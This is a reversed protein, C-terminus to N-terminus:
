RRHHHSGILLLSQGLSRHLDRSEAADGLVNSNCLGRVDEFLVVIWLGLVEGSTSLPAFQANCATHSRGSLWDSCVVVGVVAADDLELLQTVRIFIDSGLQDLLTANAINAFGDATSIQTQAFDEVVLLIVLKVVLQSIPM